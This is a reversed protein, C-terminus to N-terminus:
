VVYIYMGVCMYVKRVLNELLKLLLRTELTGYLQRTWGHVSMHVLCTFQHPTQHTDGRGKDHTLWCDDSFFPLVPFKFVPVLAETAVSQCVCTWDQKMVILAHNSHFSPHPILPNNSWWFNTHQSSFRWTSNHQAHRSKQRVWYKAYLKMNIRLTTNIKHILTNNDTYWKKSLCQRSPGRCVTYCEFIWYLEAPPPSYHIAAM